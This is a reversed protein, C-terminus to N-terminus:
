NKGRSIGVELNHTSDQKLNWSNDEESNSLAGSIDDNAESRRDAKPPEGGILWAAANEGAQDKQGTNNTTAKKSTISPFLTQGATTHGGEPGLCTAVVAEFAVDQSEPASHNAGLRRGVQAPYMGIRPRWYLDNYGSNVSDEAEEEIEIMGGNTSKSEENGIMKVDLLSAMPMSRYDDPYYITSDFDVSPIPSLTRPRMVLGSFLLGAQDFDAPIDGLQAAALEAKASSHLHRRAGVSALFMSKVGRTDPKISAGESGDQSHESLDSM